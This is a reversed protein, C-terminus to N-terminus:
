TDGPYTFDETLDERFTVRMVEGISTIGKRVLRAGKQRLSELPIQEAAKEFAAHGEGALICRRLQNTVPLVQYIGIVAQYPNRGLKGTKVQFYEKEPELGLRQREDDSPSYPVRAEPKPVRVLRQSVVGILSNALQYRDVGERHTLHFIADLSNDAYFTSLVHRGSGAAELTARTVEPDSMDSVMMVDPDARLARQIGQAKRHPDDEPVQIQSCFDLEFDVPDEVTVISCPDSFLHNLSTYLTTKKGSNEPGTFLVLGRPAKLLSRLRQDSLDDFGLESLDQQYLGERRVQAVMKEGFQTSVKDLRLNVLEEGHELQIVERQDTEANGSQEALVEFRSVLSDRMSVPLDTFHQLTGYMRFMVKVKDARPEVHIKSVGRSLAHRIVRNAMKVAPSQGENSGLERTSQPESESLILRIPRDLDTRSIKGEYRREIFRDIESQPAVAPEIELDTVMALDDIAVLDLPDQMAVTLTNGDRALPVARYRQAQKKSITKLAEPEVPYSDLNVVMCGTQKGLFQVLEHEDILNMNLLITGLRDDVDEQRQLATQLEEATILGADLLQEGLKKNQDNAM